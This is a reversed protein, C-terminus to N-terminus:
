ALPYGAQGLPPHLVATALFRPKTMLEDIPIHFVYLFGLLPIARRGLPTHLVTIDLFRLKKQLEDIPIDFLM